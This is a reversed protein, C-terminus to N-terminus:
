GGQAATLISKRAKHGREYLLVVARMAEDGARVRRVVEAAPHADYNPWPPQVDITPAPDDAPGFSAVPAAERSVHTAEEGLLEAEPAPAPATPTPRPRTARRRAGSPRAAPRRAAAERAAVREAERRGGAYAAADAEAEPSPAAGYGDDSGGGSVLRLIDKIAGAGGRLAMELLLM